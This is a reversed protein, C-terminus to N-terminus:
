RFNYEHFTKEFENSKFVPNIVVEIFIYKEFLGKEDYIEMKAPLRTDKALWLVMSKAYESPLTLKTGASVVQTVSSIKNLECIKYGPIKLRSAMQQPTEDKKLTYTYLHYGPNSFVVKDCQTGNIKEQGQLKILQSLSDSHNKILESLVLAFFDFGADLITHHQNKLLLSSNVDLEMTVWPFSGPNVWLKGDKKLLIEAGDKPYYQRYYINLPKRSRKIFFKTTEYTSGTREHSEMKMTITEAASIAAFMERCLAVPNQAATILPLLYMVAAVLLM